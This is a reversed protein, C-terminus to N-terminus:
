RASVVGLAAEIEAVDGVEGFRPFPVRLCHEHAAPNPDAMADAAFVVDYGHDYAARGTSEVGVSTFLGGLVIGTVGRRRLQLDLDTGYFAGPGRKTVVVDHPQRDLEPLFEDFGAPLRAPPAPFGSTTRNRPWDGFDPSFVVRILVVPRGAARFARALRGAAAAVPPVLGDPALGTIGQQLDVLVLATSPDLVSVPM